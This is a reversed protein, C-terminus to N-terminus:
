RPVMNVDERPRRPIDWTDAERSITHKNVTERTGGV